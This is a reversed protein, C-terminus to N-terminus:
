QGLPKKARPSPWAHTLPCPGTMVEGWRPSPRPLSPPLPPPAPQPPPPLTPPAPLVWHPPPPLPPSAQCRWPPLTICRSQRPCLRLCPSLSPAAWLSVSLCCSFSLPPGNSKQNISFLTEYSLSCTLTYDRQHATNFINDKIM